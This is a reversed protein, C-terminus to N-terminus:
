TATAAAVLGTAGFTTALRFARPAAPLGLARTLGTPGLTRERGRLGPRAIDCREQLLELGQQGLEAAAAGAGHGLLGMPPRRARSRAAPRSRGRLCRRPLDPTRQRAPVTVPCRVAGRCTRWAVEGAM